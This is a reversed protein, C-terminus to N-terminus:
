TLSPSSLSAADDIAEISFRRPAKGSAQQMSLHSCLYSCPSSYPFYARESTPAPSFDRRHLFNDDQTGQRPWLHPSQNNVELEDGAPLNIQLLSPGRLRGGCWFSFWRSQVM